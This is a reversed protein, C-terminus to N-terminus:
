RPDTAEKGDSGEDHRKREKRKRRATKRLRALGSQKLKHATSVGIGLDAAAEATTKGDAFIKTLVQRESENAKSIAALFADQEEIKEQGSPFPSEFLHDMILPRQYDITNPPKIWNRSAQWSELATEYRSEMQKRDRLTDKDRRDSENRIYYWITKRAYALWTNARDPDYGEVAAALGLTGESVADAVDDYAHLNSKVAISVVMPRFRELLWGMAKKDRKAKHRELMQKVEANRDPRGEPKTM